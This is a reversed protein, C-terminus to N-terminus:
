FMPIVVAGGATGPCVADFDAPEGRYVYVNDILVTMEDGVNRPRITIGFPWGNPPIDTDFYVKSLQDDLFATMGKSAVVAGMTRKVGIYTDNRYDHWNYSVTHYTTDPNDEISFEAYFHHKDAATDHPM